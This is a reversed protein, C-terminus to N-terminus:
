NFRYKKVIHIDGSEQLPRCPEGRKPGDTCAAGRGSKVISLFHLNDLAM